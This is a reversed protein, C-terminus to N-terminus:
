IKQAVLKRKEGTKVVMWDICVILAPVKFILYFVDSIVREEEVSPTIRKRRQRRM